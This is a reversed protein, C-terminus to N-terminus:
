RAEQSVCSSWDATSGFVTDGRVGGWFVSADRFSVVQSKAKRPLGDSLNGGQRDYGETRYVNRWGGALEHCFQGDTVFDMVLWWGTLFDRSGPEM